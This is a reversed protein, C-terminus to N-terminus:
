KDSAVGRSAAFNKLFYQKEFARYREFLGQSGLMSSFDAEAEIELSKMRAVSERTNRSDISTLITRLEGLLKGERRIFEHAIVERVGLRSSLFEFLDDKWMTSLDQSSRFQRYPKLYLLNSTMSPYFNSQASKLEAVMGVQSEGFQEAFEDAPSFYLRLGGGKGLFLPVILLLCLSALAIAVRHKAIKPRIRDTEEGSKQLGLLAVHESVLEASVPQRRVKLFTEDIKMRVKQEIEDFNGGQQGFTRVIFLSLLRGMENVEFAKRKELDAEFQKLQFELNRAHEVEAKEFEVAQRALSSEREAELRELFESRHTEFRQHEIQIQERAKSVDEDVKKYARSTIKEAESYATEIVQKKEMQFAKIQKQRESSFERMLHKQKRQEEDVLAKAELLASDKISKAQSNASEIIEESLLRAQQDSEARLAELELRTIKLQEDRESLVKQKSDILIAQAVSRQADCEAQLEELRKEWSTQELLFSAKLSDFSKQYQDVRVREEEEAKLLLAKREEAASLLLNECREVSDRMLSASAKNAQALIREVQQKAESLLDSSQQNAKAVLDETSQFLQDKKQELECLASEKEEIKVQLVAVAEACQAKREEIQSIERDLKREVEDFELRKPQLKDELKQLSENARSKNEEAVELSHNLVELRQKASDTDVRINEFQKEAQIMTLQASAVANEMELRNKNLELEKIEQKRLLDQEWKQFTEKFRGELECLEGSKSMLSEEINSLIKQSELIMSDLQAREKVLFPKELEFRKLDSIKEQYEFLENKIQDREVRLKDVVKRFSQAQSKMQLIQLKQNESELAAQEQRHLSSEKPYSLEDLSGIKKPALKEEYVPDYSKDSEVNADVEEVEDILARSRLAVEVCVGERGLCIESSAGLAQPVKVGLLEGNLYTGNSAGLDEIWLENDRYDIRCHKRSLKPHELCLKSEPSRGITLPGRKIPWVISEHFGNKFHIEIFWEKEMLHGVSTL